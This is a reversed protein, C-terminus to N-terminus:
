HPGSCIPTEGGVTSYRKTRVRFHSRAGLHLLWLEQTMSVLLLSGDRSRSSRDYDCGAILVIRAGAATCLEDPRIYETARRAM